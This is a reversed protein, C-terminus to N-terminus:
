QAPEFVFVGACSSVQQYTCSLGIAQCAAITEDAAWYHEEESWLSGWYACAQARASQDPYSIDAIVVQGRSTLYDRTLRKLLGLKFGLDFEHWVYASVIRDFRRNLSHPWTKARLDSRVLHTHPLKVKAKELMADSLDTGWVECGASVFRAALNGTGTGLDLVQMGQEPRAQTVTESLVDEYGEFSVSANGDALLQDYNAAWTNFLEKNSKM